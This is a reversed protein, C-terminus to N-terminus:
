FDDAASGFQHNRMLKGLSRGCFDSLFEDEFSYQIEESRRVKEDDIGSAFEDAFFEGRTEEIDRCM